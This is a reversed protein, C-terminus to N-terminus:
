AADRRVGTWLWAIVVGALLALYLGRALLLLTM